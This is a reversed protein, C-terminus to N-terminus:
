GDMQSCRPTSIQVMLAATINESRCQGLGWTNREALSPRWGQPNSSSFGGARVVVVFEFWHLLERFDTRSGARECSYAVSRACLVAWSQSACMPRPFVEAHFFKKEMTKPPADSSGAAVSVVEEKDGPRVGVGPNAARRAAGQAIVVLPRILVAKRSERCSELNESTPTRSSQDIPNETGLLTEARIKDTLLHRTSPSKEKVVHRTAFWTISVMMWSNAHPVRCSANARAYLLVRRVNQVSVFLFASGNLRYVHSSCRM